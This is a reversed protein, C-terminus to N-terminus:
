DNYKQNIEEQLTDFPASLREYLESMGFESEIVNWIKGSHGDAKEVLYVNLNNMLDYKDSFCEIARIFYPSHSTILLTLKYSKQLLVLARAYIVQWEPHLNIEPEDLILVDNKKIAGVRIAYELFAMAKLGSSVNQAFIPTSWNKDKFKIGEKVYYEAQGNMENRLMDLVEHAEESIKNDDDNLLNINFANLSNFPRYNRYGMFFNIVSNPVMLEKLSDKPNMMLGFRGIEDFLKPSEIFYVGKNTRIPSTLKESSKSISFTSENNSDSFSVSCYENENSLSKFQNRFCQNLSDKLKRAQLVVEDIEVENKLINIMQTKWNQFFDQNRDIINEVDSKQYLSLYKRCYDEIDNQVHLYEESKFDGEETSSIQFDEVEAIFEKNNSFSRILENSRNTRRRSANTNKLCFEELKESEKKITEYLENSCKIYYSDEWEDMGRLLSYLTKGITSKGTNNEGAVITIGDLIIEANEIKGINNIEIKM